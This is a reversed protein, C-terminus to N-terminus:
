FIKFFIIKNKVKNFLLKIKSPPPLVEPLLTNRLEDFSYRNGTFVPDDQYSLLLSSAEAKNALDIRGDVVDRLIKVYLHGIKPLTTKEEPAMKDYTDVVAKAIKLSPAGPAYATLCLANLYIDNRASM